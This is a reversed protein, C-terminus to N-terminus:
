RSKLTSVFLSLWKDFNWVEKIKNGEYLSDIHYQELQSSFLFNWGFVMDELTLDDNSSKNM